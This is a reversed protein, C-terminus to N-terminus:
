GRGGDPVPGGPCDPPRVDQHLHGKSSDNLHNLGSPTLAARKRTIPVSQTRIPARVTGKSPLPIPGAIIKTELEVSSAYKPLDGESSRADSGTRELSRVSSRVTM